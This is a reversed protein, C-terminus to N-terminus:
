REAIKEWEEPYFDKTDMNALFKEPCITISDPDQCLWAGWWSFSSNAIIHYKCLSMLYMDRWSNEAQNCDVFCFEEGKFNERCWQIDNSFVFFIPNDIKSKILNIARNYYELTAVGGYQYLDGPKSLLYDGRRIHLSVAKNCNAEIIKNFVAFEHDHEKSVDFCFIELVNGRVNKFYKESHWGGFYFNLWGKGPKLFSSYYDYNLPEYIFNIGILKAIRNLGRRNFVKYIAKYLKISLTEDFRVGFVKDLESGNHRNASAPDFVSVCKCGENKKALYFAYQSM